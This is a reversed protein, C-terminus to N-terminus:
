IELKLYEDLSIGEHTNIYHFENHCNLCLCVCKDIEKEIVELSSKRLCGITFDKKKPDVHHFTLCRIRKEGCKICPTKKSDMFQQKKYYREMEYKCHCEKCMSDYRNSGDKKKSKVFFDSLNKIEGCVECKKVM